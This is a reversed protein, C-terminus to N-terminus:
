CWFNLVTVYSKFLCQCYFSSVELHFKSNIMFPLFHLKGNSLCQLLAM